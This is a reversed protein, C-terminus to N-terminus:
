IMSLWYFVNIENKTLKLTAKCVASFSIRFHIKWLPRSKYADLFVLKSAKVRHEFEESGGGAKRKAIRGCSRHINVAAASKTM